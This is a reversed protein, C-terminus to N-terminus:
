GGSPAVEQQPRMEPVTLKLHELPSKVAAIARTAVRIYRMTTSLHSHGLLAQVISIDVGQEILHTAFAHRLSHLTAHKGIGTAEVAAACAANLTSPDLPKEGTRGPFLWPRRPREIDWYARLIGLLKPSLMVNRQKGGKGNTVHIVMRCSDIDQIRLWVVESARLGTAYATTLAVRDRRSPVAELFAAVEEPSLIVPLTKARRAYPIREPPDKCGLTVGYFFRLSSVVQNLTAWAIGQSVLHVQYDRVEEHGLHDPSRGFHQSFKKVNQIYSKRTTPSLNRVTMDEIMRRRLPSIGETRM